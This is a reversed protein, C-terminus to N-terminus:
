RTIMRGQADYHVTQGNSLVRSSGSIRGSADYNYTTGAANTDSSGALGRPGYHNTTRGNSSQESTGALRGQRDYNYTTTGNSSPQSSGVFRGRSEYYRTTGAADQVSRGGPPTRGPSPRDRQAQAASSAALLCTLAVAFRISSM